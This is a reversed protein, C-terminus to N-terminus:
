PSVLYWVTIELTGDGDTLQGAANTLCIAQDVFGSLSVLGSSVNNVLSIAAEDTVGELAFIENMGVLNPNAYGIQLQSSGGDTGYPTAGPTFKVFGAVPLLVGAGPVVVIIKPSAGLNKLEAATVHVSHMLLSGGGVASIVGAAATITTGDVKVAGFASESALGISIEPNAGGSSVIPSEGTVSEVAGGGGGGNNLFPPNYGATRM